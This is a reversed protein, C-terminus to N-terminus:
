FDRGSKGELASQMQRTVESIEVLQNAELAPCRKEEAATVAFFGHAIYDHQADALESLCERACHHNTMVLGDASVLSASCGQALRISALRAHTLWAADPGWGYKAHMKASPFNDFTWMGEDAQAVAIFGLGFLLLASVSNRMLAEKLKNASHGCFEQEGVAGQPSDPQSIARM